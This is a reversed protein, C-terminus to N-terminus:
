IFILHIRNASCKIEKLEAMPMIQRETLPLHFQHPPLQQLRGVMPCGAPVVMRREFWGWHWSVM